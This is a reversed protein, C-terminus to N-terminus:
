FSLSFRTMPLLLFADGTDEFPRVGTLSFSMGKVYWRFGVNILGNFDDEDDDGLAETSNGYEVLLKTRGGLRLDAGVLFVTGGDDGDTTGRLVALNLSRDRDGVGVVGGFTAFSGVEYVSGQGILAVGLPASERSLLRWKAGVSVGVLSSSVPIVTGVSLDLDDTLGVGGNLFVVLFNRFYSQGQGVTEPTPTLFVTNADPDQGRGRAAPDVVPEISRADRRNLALRGGSDTELVVTDRTEEVMRGRMVTGDALVVEVLQDTRDEGRREIETALAAGTTLASLAVLLITRIVL